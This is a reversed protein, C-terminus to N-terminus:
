VITSTKNFILKIVKNPKITTYEIEAIKQKDLCCLIKANKSFM